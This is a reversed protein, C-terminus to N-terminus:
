IREYSQATSLFVCPTNTDNAYQVLNLAKITNDRAERTPVFGVQDLDVLQSLLPQLRLALVKTFLKLDVNLLSIPRYSGCEAPDKGEKPIVSIHALLAEPPLAASRGLENYTKTM